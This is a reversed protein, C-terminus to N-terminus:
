PQADAHSRNSEAQLCYLRERQADSNRGALSDARALAFHVELNAPELKLAEELHSFGRDLEGTEALARGLVMQSMGKDPELSEAKQAYPLADAPQDKVLLAWALTANATANDPSVQVERRWERLAGAPDASFLLYGYLFHSWPVNPFREFFEQFLRRAARDDGSQFAAIARGAAEYMEQQGRGLERPLLPTRLGALGLATLLEENSKGAKLFLQYDTLAEDFRSNRTLLLAEHYRLLMGNQANNAAGLAIARQIDSLATPFDSTQYEAIGRMARAPGSDPDLALLKSLAAEAGAFDNRDFRMSGLLWWGEAWGANLKLAQETLAIARPFDQV